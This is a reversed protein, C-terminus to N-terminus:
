SIGPQDFPEQPYRRTKSLRVFFYLALGLPGMLFSLLLCPLLLWRSIGKQLSDHCIWMGVFLDFILYHIWGALVAEQDSFLLQVNALSDFGGQSEGSLGKFIFFGYLFCLLLIVGSFLIQFIWRKKYFWFLAIWSLLALTNVLQFLQEAM